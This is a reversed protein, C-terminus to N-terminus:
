CLLVNFSSAVQGERSSILMLYLAPYLQVQRSTLTPAAGHLRQLLEWDELGDRLAALRASGLPGNPGPYIFQGDGNAFIDSYEPLWVYNGPDFDVFPTNDIRQVVTHTLGAGAIWLNTAYYLWGSPLGAGAALWFLM